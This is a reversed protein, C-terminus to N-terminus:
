ISSAKSFTSGTLMNPRWKLCISDIACIHIKEQERNQWDILTKLTNDLQRRAHAWCSVLTIKPVQHCDNYRNGELSVQSGISYYKPYERTRTSQYDYLVLYINERMSRIQMFNSPKNLRCSPPYFLHVHIREYLVALWCNDVLVVNNEM